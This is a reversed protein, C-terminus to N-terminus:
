RAAKLPRTLGRASEVPFSSGLRTTSEWMGGSVAFGLASAVIGLTGPLRLLVRLLIEPLPQQVLWIAVAWSLATGSVAALTAVLLHSRPRAVLVVQCLGFMWLTPGTTWRVSDFLRQWPSSALSQLGERAILQAWARESAIGLGVLATVAAIVVAVTWFFAPPGHRKVYFVFVIQGAAFVLFAPWAMGLTLPGLAYFTLEALGM